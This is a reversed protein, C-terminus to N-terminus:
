FPQSGSSQFSLYFNKSFTCYPMIFIRLTIFNDLIYGKAEEEERGGNKREELIQLSM